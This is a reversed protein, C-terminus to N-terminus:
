RTPKEGKYIWVKIGVYGSRTLAPVQAYDIDARLTQSPIKGQSYQESRGIEAGNIRGSFLIKIGQAGAGMVREIAQDKARRHPYRKELQQAIREGVLKASLDPSKVEIPHVHIAPTQIGKKTLLKILEKKLLELNSGGRGIVVGPRSVHVFIDVTNISRKIEVSTVGALELRKMLFSRIQNDEELLQSYQHSNAFWVSQWDYLVGTRFGTPHIKQGM